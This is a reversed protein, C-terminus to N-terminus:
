DELARRARDMSRHAMQLSREVEFLASAADSAGDAELAQALDTARHVLDDIASGLASLQSHHLSSM